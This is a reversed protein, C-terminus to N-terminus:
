VLIRNVSKELSVILVAVGVVLAAITHQRYKWNPMM